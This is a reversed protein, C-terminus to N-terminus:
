RVFEPRLKREEVARGAAVEAPAFAESHGGTPLAEYRQRAPLFPGLPEIELAREAVPRGQHDPTM